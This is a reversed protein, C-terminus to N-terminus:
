YEGGDIDSVAATITQDVYYKNTLDNNALGTAYDAAVPGAISMKNTTESGEPAALTVVIDGAGSQLTLGATGIISLTDGPGSEIQSSSSNPADFVVNDTQIVVSGTGNPLLKL